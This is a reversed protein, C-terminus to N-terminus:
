TLSIYRFPLGSVPLVMLWSLMMAPPVRFNTILGVFYCRGGLVGAVDCRVVRGLGLVERGLVDARLARGPEEFPYTGKCKPTPGVFHALGVGSYM